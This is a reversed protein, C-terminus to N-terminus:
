DAFLETHDRCLTLIVANIESELRFHEDDLQKLSKDWESPLAAFYDAPINRKHKSRGKLHYYYVIERMLMSVNNAGARHAAQEAILMLSWTSNSYAQSIGGNCIDSHVYDHAFCLAYGPPLSQVKRLAAKCDDHPGIESDFRDFVADAFREEPLKLSDRHCPACMGSHREATLQRISRGCLVCDVRDESM